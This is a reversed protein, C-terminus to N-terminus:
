RRYLHSFSGHHQFVISQTPCQSQDILSWQPLVTRLEIQITLAPRPATCQPLTSFFTPNTLSSLYPHFLHHHHTCFNLKFSLSTQAPWFPPLLWETMHCSKLLLSHCLVLLLGAPASSPSCSAIIIPSLPLIQPSILLPLTQFSLVDLTSALINELIFLYKQWQDWQFHCKQTHFQKM